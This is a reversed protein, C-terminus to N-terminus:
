PGGTTWPGGTSFRQVLGDDFTNDNVDNFTNEVSVWGDEQNGEVSDM